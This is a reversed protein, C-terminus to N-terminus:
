FYGRIRSELTQTSTTKSQNTTTINSTASFRWEYQEHFHWAVSAALSKESFRNTHPLINQSTNAALEFTASREGSTLSKALVVRPGLNLRQHKYIMENTTIAQGVALLRLNFIPTSFTAGGGGTGIIDTTDYLHSEHATIGLLWSWRPDSMRWPSYTEVTILTGDYFKVRKSDRDFRARATLYTIGSDPEFGLNSAMADSFGLGLGFLPSVISSPSTRVAGVEIVHLKHGLDPRNRKEPANDAFTIDHASTPVRSRDALLSRFKLKSEPTMPKSSRQARWNGDMIAADWVEPHPPPSPREGNLLAEAQTQEDDTLRSQHADLKKRLSPRWRPEGSIAGAHALDRITESPITALSYKNKLKLDPRVAELLSLMHWSCNEDFFYYRFHGSKSLEWLHAILLKREEDSLKLPYEWLDRNEANNYNNVTEYYTQVDFKGQFGGTLGNFTYTLPNDDGQTDALFAVAYGLLSGRGGQALDSESNFVLFTHGFISAPNGKYASSFVIAAHDKPFRELWPDYEKCTPKPWDASLAKRLFQFRAPFV